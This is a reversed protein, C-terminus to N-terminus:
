LLRQRMPMYRGHNLKPISINIPEKFEELDVSAPFDSRWYGQFKSLFIHDDSSTSLKCLPLKCVKCDVYRHNM